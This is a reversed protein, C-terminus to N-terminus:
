QNKREEANYGKSAGIRLPSQINALATIGMLVVPVLVLFVVLLTTLLGPTLLQYYALIGGGPWITAESVDIANPFSDVLQRKSVKSGSIIVLHNSFVHAIVDLESALLSDSLGLYSDYYTSPPINVLNPWLSRGPELPVRWPLCVSVYLMSKM